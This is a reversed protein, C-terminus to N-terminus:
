ECQNVTLTVAATIAAGIIATSASVLALQVRSSCMCNKSRPSNKSSESSKKFDMKDITIHQINPKEIDTNDVTISLIEQSKPRSKSSPESGYALGSMLLILILTKIIM